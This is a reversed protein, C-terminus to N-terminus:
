QRSIGIGYIYAVMLCTDKIPGVGLNFLLLVVFLLLSGYLEQDLLLIEEFSTALSGKESVGVLIICGEDHLIHPHSAWKWGALFLYAIL